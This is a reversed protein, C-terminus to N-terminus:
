ANERGWLAQVVVAFCIKVIAILNSVEACDCYTGVISRSEMWLIVNAGELFKYLCVFEIQVGQEVLGMFVLQLSRRQQNSVHM